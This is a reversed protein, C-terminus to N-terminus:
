AVSPHRQECQSDRYGFSQPLTSPAIPALGCYRQWELTRLDAAALYEAIEAVTYVPHELHRHLRHDFFDPWGGPAFVEGIVHLPPTTSFIAGNPVIDPTTGLCATHEAHVPPLNQPVFEPAHARLADNTGGIAAVSTSDSSTSAADHWEFTALSATRDPVLHKPVFEPADARLADHIGPAAVSTVETSTSAFDQDDSTDSLTDITSCISDTTLKSLRNVSAPLVKSPSRVCMLRHKDDSKELNCTDMMLQRMLLFEERGYANSNPKPSEVTQEPVVGGAGAVKKSGWTRGTRVPPEAALYIDSWSPRRVAVKHDASALQQGDLCQKTAPHLSPM